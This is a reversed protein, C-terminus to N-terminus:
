KDGNAFFNIENDRKARLPFYQFPYVIQSNYLILDRRHSVM